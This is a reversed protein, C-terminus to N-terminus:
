LKGFVLYGANVGVKSQLTYLHSLLLTQVKRELEMVSKLQYLIRQEHEDCSTKFNSIQPIELCMKVEYYAAGSAVSM